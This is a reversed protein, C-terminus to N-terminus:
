GGRPLGWLTSKKYKNKYEVHVCSLTLPFDDTSQGHRGRRVGSAAASHHLPQPFHLQLHGAPLRAAGAPARVASGPGGARLGSYDAALGAPLHRRDLFNCV